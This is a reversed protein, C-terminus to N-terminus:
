AATEKRKRRRIVLPRRAPVKLSDDDDDPDDLGATPDPQGRWRGSAIYKVMTKTAAVLPVAFVAGGIGAFLSGASVSILVALPHLKMAPGMILPQLVNSEIAMVAVVIVLMIVANWFGNALLAVIVALAGSLFAGVLPVFAALFVIIGIALAYPVQLIVAGLFIGVADILAVVVQVRVYHGTSIWAREGAGDVAARVNRPFLSVIFLWIRRGDFLYFVVALLTFITGTLVAAIAGGASLTSQILTTANAQLWSVAEALANDLLEQSIELPTSELWALFERYRRLLDNVDFQQGSRFALVALLVLATISAFLVLMGVIMALWKPWNFENTLKNTLPVLLATLLLAILLPVVIIAAKGILWIIPLVALVIVIGRWSWAAAIRVPRSVFDAETEREPLNGPRPVRTSGSM